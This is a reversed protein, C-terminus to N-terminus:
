TKIANGPEAFTNCSKLHIIACFELLLLGNENRIGTGFNRLIRHWENEQKNSRGFRANLDGCITINVTKEPGNDTSRQLQEYFQMKDEINHPNTPTYIAIVTFVQNYISISKLFRILFLNM